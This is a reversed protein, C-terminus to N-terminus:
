GDIVSEIFKNWTLHVPGRLHHSVAFNEHNTKAVNTLIVVPGRITSDVIHAFWERSKAEIAPTEM